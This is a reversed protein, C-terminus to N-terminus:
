KSLLEQARELQDAAAGGLSVLLVHSSM